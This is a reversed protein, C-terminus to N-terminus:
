NAAILGKKRLDKGVLRAIEGVLKEASSPNVTESLGAWVVKDEDLWYLLTEVQVITDTRVYGPDYYAGWGYGYYGWFGGRYPAPTITGPVYTLEQSKSVPRLALAYNYGGAAVKRKASETDRLDADDLIRYSADAREAGILGVLEDEVSRRVSPNDSVAVVLVKGPPLLTTTGPDKWSQKLSTSACGTLAVAATVSLLAALTRNM